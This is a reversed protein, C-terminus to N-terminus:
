ITTAALELEAFCDIERVNTTCYPHQPFYGASIVATRLIM